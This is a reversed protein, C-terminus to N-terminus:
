SAVLVKEKKCYMFIIPTFEQLWKKAQSMSLTPNKSTVM